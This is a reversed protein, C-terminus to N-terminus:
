PPGAHGGEHVTAISRSAVEIVSGVGVDLYRDGFRSAFVERATDGSCHTPAVHQVGLADIRSAIEMCETPNLDRLHFGGLALGVKGEAAVTRVIELIGPHACGTILILGAESEVILSQEAPDSGMEGTTRVGESVPGPGTVEVVSAREALQSKLASPFASLVYVTPRAGAELVADIGGIHDSHAHSLVITEIRAPDIDLARMNRALTEADGGTDFLVTTDGREVLCSFGWGTALEPNTPAVDGTPPDNDYVITLRVPANVNSMVDNVEPEDPRTSPASEEAPIPPPARNPGDVSTCGAALAVSAVLLVFPAPWGSIRLGIGPETRM